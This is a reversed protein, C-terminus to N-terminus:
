ISCFLEACTLGSGNRNESHFTGHRGAWPSTSDVFSWSPFCPLSTTDLPGGPQADPTISNDNLQSGCYPMSLIESPIGTPKNQRIEACPGAGGLGVNLLYGYESSGSSTNIM